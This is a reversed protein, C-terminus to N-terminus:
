PGRDINGLDTRLGLDTFHVWLPFGEDKSAVTRPEGVTGPRMRGAPADRDEHRIIYAWQM